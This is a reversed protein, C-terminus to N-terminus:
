PIVERTLGYSEVIDDEDFVVFLRDAEHVEQRYRYFIPVTFVYDRRREFKWVAIRRDLIDREVYVQRLGPIVGRGKDLVSPRRHEMPSGLRKVLEVRTTVGPEIAAEIQEDSPLPREFNTRVYTFCGGTSAALAVALAVCRTFRLTRSCAHM